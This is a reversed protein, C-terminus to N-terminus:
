LRRYWGTIQLEGSAACAPVMVTTTTNESSNVSYFSCNTDNASAHPILQGGLNIGTVYGTSFAARLSAVSIPPLSVVLTGSTASGKDTWVIWAEFYVLNGITAYYGSATSTTFSASGNGITPTYSNTAGLSSLPLIGSVNAANLGTLGSGNGSFIGSLNVGGAGNTLVGSPLQTPTLVGSINASSVSNANAATIAYPVPTIPQRPALTTFTNMANTSVALQLWDSTNVFTNSGFDVLTTFLGNTVSVANNTVPGAIVNGAAGNTYLTFQLDFSGNVPLGAANLRGQYTFATGQGETRLCVAQLLAFVCLLATRMIYVLKGEMMPSTSNETALPIVKQWAQRSTLAIRIPFAAM